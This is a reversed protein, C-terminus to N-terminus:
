NKKNSIRQVIRYALQPFDLAIQNELSTDDLIDGFTHIFSKKLTEIIQDERYDLMIRYTAEDVEKKRNELRRKKLENQAYEVAMQQRKKKDMYRDKNNLLLEADSNSESNSDTESFWSKSSDSNSDSDSFWSKGSNTSKITNSRLISM